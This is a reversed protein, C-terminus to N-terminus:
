LTAAEELFARVLVPDKVGRSREVGSSVDVARAGSIRVAERLNGATLGGSLLWPLNPLPVALLSWDFARANGGPLRAGKPPRSDFLLRDAAGEFAFAAKVDAQEAVPLAKWVKYGFRRGVEAVREPTERGHLQLVDLGSAEAARGITKDDADVFLGVKLVGSPVGSALLAAADPSIERPSGSVFAFGVAAAGGEVASELVERDRIGCIKVPVPM